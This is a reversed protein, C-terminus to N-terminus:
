YSINVPVARVMSGLLVVFISRPSMVLSGHSKLSVATVTVGKVRPVVLAFLTNADVSLQVVDVYLPPFEVTFDANLTSSAKVLILNISDLLMRDKETATIFILPFM